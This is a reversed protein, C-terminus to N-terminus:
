FGFCVNLHLFLFRVFGLCIVVFWVSQAFGFNCWLLVLAFGAFEFFVMIWGRGILGFDLFCIFWVVVGFLGMLGFGFRLVLM